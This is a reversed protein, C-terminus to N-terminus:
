APGGITTVAQYRTVVIATFRQEDVRSLAGDLVARDLTAAAVGDPDTYWDHSRVLWVQAHGPLLGRLRAADASTTRPELVGADVLDAPVGREEVAPGASRFYYDFPIQAWSADFVVLDGPRAEAAVALAAGKWDEVSGARYWAVLSFSEVALVLATAAALLWRPRVATLAVAALLVLPVSTWVLTQSYFIPRRLSVVLEAVPPGAVLAVLLLAVIGRGNRRLVVVGAAALAVVAVALVATLYEPAHASLLNRLHEAVADVTPEPIWFRADVQGSQRLFGGLWPLWGVVGLVLGAVVPRLPAPRPGLVVTADPDPQERRRAV